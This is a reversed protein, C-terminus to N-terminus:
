QTVIPFVIFRKLLIIRGEAVILGKECIRAQHRKLFGGKREESHLYYVETMWFVGKEKWFDLIKDM